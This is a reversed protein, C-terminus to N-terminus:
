TQRPTADNQAVEQAVEQPLPPPTGGFEPCYQKFSCWSCAFSRQPQWAGTEHALRIADRLALVVRETALLDALDPSYSLTEGNGLYMLRLVSPVVGHMRYLVLAYFRLQFLARAEYQEGASRGTKYDTIRIAGDPAVDVRDIIGRLLLGDSLQTEVYLERDAPELVTPDELQFYRALVTRCSTLWAALGAADEPAFLSGVAPEAEQVFAWAAEVMGAAAPATRDTAPLDFLDELVKHVVTGRVADASPQEPLRDLVRLRYRLPCTKFDGARSPSLSDYPADMGDVRPLVESVM